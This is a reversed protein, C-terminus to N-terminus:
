EVREKRIYGKENSGGKGEVGTEGKGGTLQQQVHIRKMCHTMEGLWVRGTEARSVAQKM